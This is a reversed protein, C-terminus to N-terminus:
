LSHAASANGHAQIQANLLNINGCGMTLAMDGPQWRKRLFSETDDFTPTHHADVGADRMAKVLMASNIDGPDAERAAYIDTVLVFDADDCCHIYDNFLRKVRSYTHPQMVAWLRNHPQLAAVGLANRMEVPNHGYDHVLTVGDVTGTIEFRRHVPQFANLADAARMPDAGICVAAALAGLANYVSFKGYVELALDAIHEGDRIVKFRPRGREDMHLDGPHWDNREDLGFSATNCKARSMLERVRPDDGNGIITGDEPLLAAFQEFTEQIHDIDRYYDLHDADINLVVAVTPRLQLFSAQFECAEAVFLKEGGVRTSGGIADFRGGLHVTPNLGAGILAQALMASTTTKGHAGCVGVSQEHGQMLQGLLEARTLTPISLEEARALEPNDKAIAATYVVIDAGEVAEPNHGVSVNAGQKRLLEIMYGEDRDTGSVVYGRKLLLEALGSMSSGGIGIMHVRKGAFDRIHAQM